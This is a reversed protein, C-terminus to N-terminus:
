ESAYKRACSLRRLLQGGPARNTDRSTAPYPITGIHKVVVQTDGYIEFGLDLARQCFCWDESLYRGPQERRPKYVGVQWFDHETRGTCDCRYSIEDGYASLMKEFVDRCVLLFGAGIYRLPLLGRENPVLTSNPLSDAAFILKGDRKIPCFGGVIAEGHSAIRKVDDLSFVIDCDIQLLHTCDSGM